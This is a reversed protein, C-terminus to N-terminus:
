SAAKINFLMLRADFLIRHEKPIEFRTLEQSWWGILLKYNPLKSMFEIRQGCYKMDSMIDAIRIITADLSYKHKKFLEKIYPRRRDISLEAVINATEEDTDDALEDYTFGMDFYDHYLAAYKYLDKNYYKSVIQEVDLNHNYHQFTTMSGIIPIEREIDRYKTVINTSLLMLKDNKLWSFECVFTESNIKTPKKIYFSKM